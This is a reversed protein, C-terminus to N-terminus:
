RTNLFHQIAKTTAPGWVGDIKAGVRSQLAKISRNWFLGDAVVGLWRQTARKSSPGWIGDQTAGVERQLRKITLPGFVGDERLLPEAIVPPEPPTWVPPAPTTSVLPDAKRGLIDLCGDAIAQALSEINEHIFRAGEVTDHRFAEILVTTADTDVIESVLLNDRTGCTDPVVPDLRAKLAMALKKGFENGPYWAVLSGGMANSHGSVIFDLPKTRHQDNGWVVNDKYNIKGDPVYGEFPCVIVEHGHGAVIEASRYIIRSMHDRETDGAECRNGSQQSHFFAIRGM